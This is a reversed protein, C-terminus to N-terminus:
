RMWPQNFWICRLYRTGQKLLMGLISKGPTTSRLDIEDIVGVVSAVKREELQDIERLESMDQYTRPFFFLVDAAYHLDLKALLEARQPGVGKLYQVPTALQEATTKQPPSSM